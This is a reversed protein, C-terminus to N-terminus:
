EDTHRKFVLTRNNAPMAVDAAAELGHKRGHGILELADRIGMDPDQQRLTTDFSANSSATHKGGLTFPGYIVLLGGPKLVGAAGEVMALAEPWSMIHCTNATYVVEVPEVPWPIEAADLRFPELVNPGGEANVRARLGELDDPQDTPQFTLSPFRRAFHVVHQGSGAGIELVRGSEPLWAELVRAIPEKNRESAPSFPLQSNM